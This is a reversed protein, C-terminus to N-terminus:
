KEVIEIGPEENVRSLTNTLMIFWANIFSTMIEELFQNKEENMNEGEFAAKIYDSAVTAIVEIADEYEALVTDNEGFLARVVNESVDKTSESAAFIIAAGELTNEDFENKLGCLLSETCSKSVREIQAKSFCFIM